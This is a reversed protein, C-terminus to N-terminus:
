DRLAERLLNMTAEIAALRAPQNTGITATKSPTNVGQLVTRPTNPADFSHWVGPYETYRVNPLRGALERCAAAPTWDDDAGIFIALPAAQRFGSIQVAGQCGPYFAVVLRFDHRPEPTRMRNTVSNTFMVTSGGNSWGILAMRDTRLMPQTEAWAVAGWMDAPREFGVSAKQVGGECVRRIGRPTFSDPLLVAWGEAVFRRYWDVLHPSLKESDRQYLGACSHAAVVLPFPGAGEPKFLHASLTTPAGGTLGQDRSPFSVTEAAAAGPVLLALVLLLRLM